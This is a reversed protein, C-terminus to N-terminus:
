ESYHSNCHNSFNERKTLLIQQTYTHVCTESDADIQLKSNEENPFMGIIAEKRSTPVLCNTRKGLRVKVLVNQNAQLMETMAVEVM